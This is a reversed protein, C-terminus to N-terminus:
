HKSRDVCSGVTKVRHNDCFWVDRLSYKRKCLKNNTDTYLLEDNKMVGTILCDPNHCQVIGHNYTIDFYESNFARLLSNRKRWALKIAARINESEIPFSTDTPELMKVLESEFDDHTTETMPKCRVCYLEYTDETCLVNHWSKCDYCTFVNCGSCKEDTNTRADYKGCLECSPAVVGNKELIEITATLVELDICAKILNSYGGLVTSSKAVNYNRADYTDYVSTIHTTLPTIEFTTWESGPNGCQEGRGGTFAYEFLMDIYKDPLIAIIENTTLGCLMSFAGLSKPWNIHNLNNTERMTRAMLVAILLANSPNCVIGIEKCYYEKPTYNTALLM